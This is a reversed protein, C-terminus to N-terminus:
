FVLLPYSHYHCDPSLYCAWDMWYKGPFGPRYLLDNHCIITTMLHVIINITINIMILPLQWSGFFVCCIMMSWRTWNKLSVLRVRRHNLASTPSLEWLSSLFTSNRWPSIIFFLFFNPLGPWLFFVVWAPNIKLRLVELAAPDHNHLLVADKDFCKIALYISHELNFIKAM